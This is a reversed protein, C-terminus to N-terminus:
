IGATKNERSDGAHGKVFISRGMRKRWLIRVSQEGGFLAANFLDAFCLSGSPDSWRFYQDDVGSTFHITHISDMMLTINGKDDVCLIHCQDIRIHRITAMGKVVTALIGEGRYTIPHIACELM